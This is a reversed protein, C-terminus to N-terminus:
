TTRNRKVYESAILRLLSSLTINRENALQQLAEKLDYSARCIQDLAENKNGNNSMNPVAENVQASAIIFPDAAPKSTLLYKQKILTQFVPTKFIERVFETEEPKPLLFLRRNEDLWAKLHPKTHHNDLEKYVERVSLIEGSAVCQNFREWFSPFQNPFYHGLVIFSGTDFIYTM